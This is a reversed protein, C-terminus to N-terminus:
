IFNRFLLPKSHNSHLGKDKDEPAKSLIFFVIRKQSFFLELFLFFVIALSITRIFMGFSSISHWKQFMTPYEEYRRPIGQLGSFHIPFFTTNVGIFITIFQAKFLISNFGTNNILPFWLVIINLIGFVAGLSLVYHFHAVVFYTDHLLIDISASSLIIGTAGGLTFLFLFGVLWFFPLRTHNKSGWVGRIWRLVKIGTPIAIVITRSSFYARTDIDIGITFIHHAWVVCGLFGIIRIAIIIRQKGFAQIKGTLFVTSSSIVGFAPLILVYVEPHGFFWFLSQFLLPDGGGRPDFFTTNLNRDFLLM